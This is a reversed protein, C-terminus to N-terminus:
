EYRLAEAPPVRSALWSPYVACLLTIGYIIALALTLGLVFVAPTVISFLGLIPLQLVIVVGVILSLTSLLAVEGLVQRRVAIGTAGVSRRLGIERIRRTVSQWLVGTLGLTVMSILFLAVISGIVAPVVYIRLALQRMGDMHKIHFSLDPAVAHLRDSLQQELEPPTGPRLRVLLNRSGSAPGHLLSARRFAMNMKTRSFEGDKRYPAVIGVVRVMTGDYDFDKGLPDITPFAAAALDRDIVAAPLPLGEDAPGFWRGRLLKLQMVRLYDDTVDDRIVSFKRGDVVRIGESTSFSYPPCDSGAAAVVQPMSAAERLLAAVKQRYAPDEKQMEADSRDVQVMWVDHWSFGLPDSWRSLLSAALTVVAFVVLFSIFIEVILLANARKRNWVLKLLHRIM